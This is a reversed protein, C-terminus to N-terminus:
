NNNKCSYKRIVVNDMSIHSRRESRKERGIVVYLAEIYAAMDTHIHRRNEVILTDDLFLKRPTNINCVKSPNYVGKHITVHTVQHYLVSSPDSKIDFNFLNLIEAYEMVLPDDRSLNEALFLRARTLPEYEGLSTNSGFIGGIPLFFFDIITYAFAGVVISNYKTIM